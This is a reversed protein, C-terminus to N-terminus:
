LVPEKLYRDIILTADKASYGKIRDLPVFITRPLIGWNWAFLDSLLKPDADDRVVL